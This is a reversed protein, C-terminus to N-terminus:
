KLTFEFLIRGFVQKKDLNSFKFLICVTKWEENLYLHYAPKLSSKVWTSSKPLMYIVQREEGLCSQYTSKLNSNVWILSKPLM